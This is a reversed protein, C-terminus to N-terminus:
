LQVEEIHPSKIDHEKDKFIFMKKMMRDRLKNKPLMGYVSNWIVKRSDKKLTEELSRSTIGGPYGSFSHYMKDDKKRGTVNLKDSNVVIVFYEGEKNPTYDTKNKGQLFFAIKASMRGLFFKECDFLYYKKESIMKKNM